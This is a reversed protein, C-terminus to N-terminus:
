DRYDADLYGNNSAWMEIAAAYVRDAYHRMGDDFAGLSDLYEGMKMGCDDCYQRIIELMEDAFKDFVAVRDHTYCFGVGSDSGHRATDILENHTHNAKVWQEFSTSRIILKHQRRM